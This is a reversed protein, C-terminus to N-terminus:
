QKNPRQSLIRAGDGEGAAYKELYERGYARDVCMFFARFDSYLMGLIFLTQLFFFDHYSCFSDV